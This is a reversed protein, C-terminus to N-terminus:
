LARDRGQPPLYPRDSMDENLPDKLQVTAALDDFILEGYEKKGRRLSNFFVRSLRFPHTTHM